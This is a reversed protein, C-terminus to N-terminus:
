KDYKFEIEIKYDKKLAPYLLKPNIVGDTIYGKNKLFTLSKKFVNDKLGLKIQIGQHVQPSMLLEKLKNKEYDQYKDYLTLFSALVPIDTKRNLKLFPNLFLLYKEYFDRQHIVKM